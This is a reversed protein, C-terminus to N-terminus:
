RAEVSFFANEFDKCFGVPSQNEQGLMDAEEAITFSRKV